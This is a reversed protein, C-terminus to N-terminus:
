DRVFKGGSWVWTEREPIRNPSLSNQPSKGIRIRAPADLDVEIGQASSAEFIKSLANNNFAYVAVAPFTDKGTFHVVMWAKEDFNLEAFEINKITGDVVMSEIVQGAKNNNRITVLTSPDRASDDQTEVVEKIGDGNLDAYYLRVNHNAPTYIDPTACGAILFVSLVFLYM